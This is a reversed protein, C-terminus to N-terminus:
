AASERRSREPREPSSTLPRLNGEDDIRAPILGSSGGGLEVRLTKLKKKGRAARAKALQAEARARGASTIMDRRAGRSIVNLEENPVFGKEESLKLILAERIIESMGKGNYNKEVFSAIEIPIRVSCLKSTSNEMKKIKGCFRM